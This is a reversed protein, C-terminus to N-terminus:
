IMKIKGQEDFEVDWETKPRISQIYRKQEQKAEKLSVDGYAAGLEWAEKIDDVTFLKDKVLEQHAKFGEIYGIMVGAAQSSAKCKNLVFQEAMKEVSYGNVAEEVESLSIPKILHYCPEKGVNRLMKGDLIECGYGQELPQTSHTIVKLRSKHLKILNEDEDWIRPYDFCLLKVTFVSAGDTVKCEEKIESDDAVVYRTGSLKLLKMFNPTKNSKLQNKRPNTRPFDSSEIDKEPTDSSEPNGRTGEMRGTNELIIAL